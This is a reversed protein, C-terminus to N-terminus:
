ADMGTGPSRPTRLPSAQTGWGNRGETDGLPLKPDRDLCTAGMSGKVQLVGRGANDLTFAHSTCGASPRACGPLRVCAAQLPRAACPCLWEGRRPHTCLVCLCM